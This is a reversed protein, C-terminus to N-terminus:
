SPTFEFKGVSSRGPHISTDGVLGYTLTRLTSQWNVKVQTLTLVVKVQKPAPKPTRHKLQKM